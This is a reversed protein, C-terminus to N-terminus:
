TALAPSILRSRTRSSAAAIQWTARSPSLVCIETLQRAINALLDESLSGPLLIAAFRGYRRELFTYVRKFLASVATAGV